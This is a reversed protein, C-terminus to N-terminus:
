RTRASRSCPPCQTIYIPHFSRDFAPGNSGGHLRDSDGSSFILARMESVQKDLGNTIANLSLESSDILEFLEETSSIIRNGSSGIGMAHTIRNGLEITAALQANKPCVSSLKGPETHHSVIAEILDKPLNWNGLMTQSMSTHDSLLLRKEVLELPVGLTHAHKLVKPYHEPFIQHLIVRGIDHLIGATFAM